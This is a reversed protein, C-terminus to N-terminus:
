KLENIYPQPDRKPDGIVDQVYDEAFRGKLSSLEGMKAIDKDLNEVDIWRSKLIEKAYKPALIPSQSIVYEGQYFRDDIFEAYDISTAADISIMELLDYKINEPVIDYTYKIYELAVRAARKPDERKMLKLYLIQKENIEPAEPPKQEGSTTEFDLEALYQQPNGSEDKIVYKVYPVGNKFSLANREGWLAVGREMDPADVWRQDLYGLAYQFATEPNSAIIAEGDYFRGDIFTDAYNLAVHPDSLIKSSLKQAAELAKEYIYRAQAPNEDYKQYAERRLFQLYDLVQRPSAKHLIKIKQEYEEEFEDDIPFGIDEIIYKM